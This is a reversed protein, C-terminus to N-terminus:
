VRGDDTPGISGRWKLHHVLQNQQQMTPLPLLFLSTTTSSFSSYMISIHRCLIWSPCASGRAKLHSVVVAFFIIIIVVVLSFLFSVCLYRSTHSHPSQICCSTSATAPCKSINYSVKQLVAVSILNLTIKNQEYMCASRPKAVCTAPCNNQNQQTQQTTVMHGRQTHETCRSRSNM